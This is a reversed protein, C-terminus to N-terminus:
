HLFVIINTYVQLYGARAAYHVPTYGSGDKDIVLTKSAPSQLHIFFCWSPAQKYAILFLEEKTFPNSELDGRAM